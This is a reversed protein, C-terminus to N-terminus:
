KPPLVYSLKFKYTFSKNNKLQSFNNREV